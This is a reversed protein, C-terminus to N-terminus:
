EKWNEKLHSEVEALQEKDMEKLDKIFTDLWNSFKKENM